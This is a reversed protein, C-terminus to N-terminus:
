NRPRQERQNSELGHGLCTPDWAQKVKSDYQVAALVTHMQKLTYTCHSPDSELSTSSPVVISLTAEFFFYSSLWSATDVERM